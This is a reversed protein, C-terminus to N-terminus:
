IFSGTEYSKEILNIEIDTTDIQQCKPCRYFYIPFVEKCNNCIYSFSLDARVDGLKQLKILTDLAFIESRESESVEGKASYIESLIKKSKLADRDFREASTMWLLDIVNKLEVEDLVKEDIDMDSQKLFEFIKRQVIRSDLGLAKLEELKKENSFKKNHIISLTQFYLRKQGVDSGMAELADLTEIAKDYERLIEYIVSLTTLAEENRPSLRLSTLLTERSKQLFGAKYYTKGLLTLMDKRKEPGITNKLIALYIEIAKEFEGSKEYTLAMLIASETPLDRKRILSKYDDFSNYQDFKKVYKKINTEEEKGKFLGWLYSSSSIIFIIALLTIVGFIPDRYDLSLFELDNGLDINKYIIDCFRNGKIGSAM